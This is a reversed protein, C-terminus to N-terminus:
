RVPIEKKILARGRARRIDQYDEEVIGATGGPRSVTPADLHRGQVAECLIPQRIRLPVRSGHAGGGSGGEQRSAIMVLIPEAGDRFRGGAEGAIAAMDWALVRGDSRYQAVRPPAGEPNTLIVVHRHVREVDAGVAFM